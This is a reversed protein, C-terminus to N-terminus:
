IKTKNKDPIDRFISKSIFFIAFFQLSHINKPELSVLPSFRNGKANVRQIHWCTALLHNLMPDRTLSAHRLIPPLIKSGMFCQWINAPGIESHSYDVFWTNWCEPWYIMGPAKLGSKTSLFLPVPINASPFTHTDWGKTYSTGIFAARATPSFNHIGLFYKWLLKQCHPCAQLKWFGLKNSAYM